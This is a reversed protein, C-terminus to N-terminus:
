QLAESLAAPVRVHYPLVIGVPLGAAFAAAQSGHVRRLRLRATAGLNDVVAAASRLQAPDTVTATVLMAFRTVGAGAAEERAAQLAARLDLDDRAAANHRRSALFRATRVDNEVLRAATGADHPRYILTVRKRAVDPHPALLQSLVSSLVVGRPAESMSWSVSTGSDHQYHDVAEQAATPGADEWPVVAAAGDESRARDVFTAVVPDYAVRVALAIEAATMATVAGAGTSNLAAMLGPVRTGLEVAMEQTTRRGGPGGARYTLQVRTAILASGTPYTAVIEAMVRRALEPAAPDVQRAVEAELRTGPDPATEVTVAAAVLSPEHSLAALWDGWSAVWSDVQEADVLAAGDADCRLVVSYHHTSPVRIMGFPRDYADVADYLVTGASLGPLTHRGGPVLSTIGSRYLHQRRRRGYWWALQATIRQLGSRGDRRVALPVLLLVVTVAVALAGVRSFLATVVAVILGGFLLATGLLGLNGLGPSAPRRWHGFTTRTSPGPSVATM